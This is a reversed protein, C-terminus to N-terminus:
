RRIFDSTILTTFWLVLFTRIANVSAIIANSPNKSWSKYSLFDLSWWTFLLVSVGPTFILLFSMFRSIKTRNLVGFLTGPALFTDSRRAEHQFFWFYTLSFLIVLEVFNSASLLTLPPATPSLPFLKEEGRLPTEIESINPSEYIALERVNELTLHQLSEERSYSAMHNELKTGRDSAPVPAGRNQRFLRHRSVAWRYIKFDYQNTARRAQALLDGNGLATLQNAITVASDLSVGIRTFSPAAIQANTEPEKPAGPVEPNLLPPAAL